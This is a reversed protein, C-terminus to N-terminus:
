AVWISRRVSSFAFLVLADFLHADAAVVVVDGGGLGDTGVAAHQLVLLEIGGISRQCLPIPYLILLFSATALSRGDDSM